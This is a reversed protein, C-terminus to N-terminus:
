VLIIPTGDLAARVSAATHGTGLTLASVRFTGAKYVQAPTDAALTGLDYAAIFRPTESGDGAASASVKLKGTATVRGLVAGRVVEEGSAITETQNEPPYSGAILDDPTWIESSQPM